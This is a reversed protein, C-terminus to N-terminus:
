FGYKLDLRTRLIDETLITEGGDKFSYGSYDISLGYSLGPLLQKLDANWSVGSNLGIASSDFVEGSTEYEELYSISTNFSLTGADFLPIFFSTGIFPGGYDLDVFDTKAYKIGGFFTVNPSVSFGTTLNLEKRGKGFDQNDDGDGVEALDSQGYLDVFFRNKQFTLGLGGFIYNFSVENGLQDSNYHVFGTSVRPTISFEAANATYPLFFLASGVFSIITIVRHEM